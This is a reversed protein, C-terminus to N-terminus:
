RGDTGEKKKTQRWMLQKRLTATLGKFRVNQLTEPLQGTTLAEQLLEECHTIYDQEFGRMPRVTTLDGSLYGGGRWVSCGLSELPQV